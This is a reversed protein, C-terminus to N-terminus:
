FELERRRFVSVAIVYFIAIYVIVGVASGCDLKGVMLQAQLKGLMTTLLFKELHLSRILALDFLKGLLTYILGVELVIYLLIGIAANQLLLILFVCVATYALTSIWGIVSAAMVDWLQSGQLAAGTVYALIIQSVALCAFDVFAMYAIDLYKTRVVQGRTLGMGIGVQMNKAKLDDSFVVALEVIGFFIPALGVYNIFDAVFVVSNWNDKGSARVLLIGYVILIALVILVRPIRKTIRICDAKWYHIM